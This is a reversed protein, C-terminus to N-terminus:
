QKDKHRFPFSVAVEEVLQSLRYDGAKLAKRIDEIAPRDIPKIERGLAYALVRHIANDIIFNDEDVVACDICITEDNGRIEYAEVEHSECNRCINYMFHPQQNLVPASANLQQSIM